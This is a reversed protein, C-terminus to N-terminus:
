IIGLQTLKFDRLNLTFLKNLLEPNYKEQYEKWNNDTFWCLGHQNVFFDFNLQGKDSLKNIKPVCITPCAPKHGMKSIYYVFLEETLM